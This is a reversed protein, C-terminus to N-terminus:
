HTCGEVLVNYAYVLDANDSHCNVPFIIIYVINCGVYGLLCADSANMMNMTLLIEVEVVLM